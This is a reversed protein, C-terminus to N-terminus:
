PPALQNVAIASNVFLLKDRLHLVTTSCGVAWRVLRLTRETLKTFPRPAPSTPLSGPGGFHEPDRLVKGKLAPSDKWPRRESVHM